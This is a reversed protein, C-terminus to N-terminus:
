VGYSIVLPSIGATLQLGATGFLCDMAKKVSSTGYEIAPAQGMAPAKQMGYAIGSKEFMFFEADLLGNHVIVPVGYLRGIQGNMIVQGTYMDNRTFEDINLLKSEQDASVVLVVANMDANAQKLMKRMKIVIAKTIDGAIGVATSVANLTALIRADINRGHASAARKATEM